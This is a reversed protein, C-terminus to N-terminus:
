RQKLKIAKVKFKDHARIRNYSTKFYTLDMEMGIFRFGEKMAAKGTSGSGMFPDLIIGNPPTVLKCLYRMLKESKVTPHNNKYSTTRGESISSPKGSGGNATQFSVHAKEKTDLYEDRDKKSVKACYFFRAASGEDGQRDPLPISNTKGQMSISKHEKKIYSSKMSGSKTNPFLSVVEESGDHIVNAPFRGKENARISIQDEQNNKKFIGGVKDRKMNNTYEQMNTPEIRCADINFAGVGWKLINDAYSGKFPKRAIVIPEMAPKLGTKWGQWQKAEDSIANNDDLEHYGVKKSKEIYPRTQNKGALSGSTNARASIKIKTRKKGLKKDLQKSIDTAKPFGTSHVWVIQDRIEFGALRMALVGIDYTRTGFFAVCFGGPKLVRLAEKWTEPQPVFSDWEKQMFGKYKHHYTTNNLWAGLMKFIDPEKSLGYPPDTVVSHVSNDKLKKFADLNNGYYLKAHM